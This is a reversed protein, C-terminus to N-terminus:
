KAATFADYEKQWEAVEADKAGDTVIIRYRLTLPKEPVVETKSFAGLRGYALTSYQLPTANKPDNFHAVAYRKEGILFNCVVWQCNEWVDSKKDVAGEPRTYRTEKQTKNVEEAARFHFGAHQADGELKVPGSPAELTYTFDLVLRDKAPKTATVRQTKHIVVKGEPTPWDTVAAM